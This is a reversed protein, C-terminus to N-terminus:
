VKEVLGRGLIGAPRVLLIIVLVSFLVADRYTSVFYSATSETFGMLLGGLMAGPISGIGGLVAAIFAKLGPYIGMYPDVRGYTLAFLVGGAAALASGIAFTFSIVQDVNIGMLRAADKDFSVARMAKGMKTHVVIYYLLGMLALATGMVVLQRNSINPLGPIAMVTSTPLLKESPFGRPTPGLVLATTYELFLSVGMATILATLSPAARVPKYALREITVGIVACIVMSLVLTVLLPMPVSDAVSSGIYFGAFAGLMLVDGHAFNILKLVGYVMTYGLAILAYVSGLVLGNLLVQLVTEM